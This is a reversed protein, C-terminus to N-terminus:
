NPLVYSLPGHALVLLHGVLADVTGLVVIPIRLVGNPINFICSNIPLTVLLFCKGPDNLITDLSTFIFTYVGATNTVTSKVVQSVSGSGCVLDVKAQPIVDYTGAIAVSTNTCTIVGGLIGGSLLLQASSLAFAISLLTTMLLYTSPFAM